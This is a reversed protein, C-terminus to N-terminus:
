RRPEKSGAGGDKRYDADGRTAKPQKEQGHEHGPTIPQNHKKQEASGKKVVMSVLLCCAHWM